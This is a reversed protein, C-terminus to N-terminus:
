GSGCKSPLSRRIAIPRCRGGGHTRILLGQAELWALDKRITVESLAFRRSLDAVSVRGEEELIRLIAQRREHPFRVM